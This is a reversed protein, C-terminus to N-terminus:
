GKGRRKLLGNMFEAHGQAFRTWVDWLQTVVSEVHNKLQDLREDLRTLTEAIQLTRDESQQLRANQQGDVRAQNDQWERLEARQREATLRQVEAMEKGQQRVQRELERLEYMTQRNREFNASFEEMQASWRAVPVQAAAIQKGLEDILRAQDQQKVQIADVDSRRRKGFEEVASQLPDIRAELRPGLAELAARLQIDVNRLDEVSLRLDSLGDRLTQTNQELLEIRPPQASVRKSTDSIGAIAETLQSRLKSDEDRLTAITNEYSGLSEVREQVQRIIRAIVETEQTEVQARRGESSDAQVAQRTLVNTLESRIGQISSELQGMRPLQGEIRALMAQIEQLQRAQETLQAKHVDIQSQLQMLLSKDKRHEEDLWTLLQSAQNLDL